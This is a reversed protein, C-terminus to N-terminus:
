CTGPLTSPRTLPGGASLGRCTLRLLKLAWVLLDIMGALVGAQQQQLWNDISGKLQM